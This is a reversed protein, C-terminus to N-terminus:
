LKGLLLIAMLLGYIAIGEAMALYILGKNFLEPKETIAGLAAAGVVAVAYGAGLCPIGLALAIAFSIDWRSGAPSPSEAAVPAAQAVPGGETDAAFAAPVGVGAIVVFAVMAAGVLVAQKIFRKKVGDM